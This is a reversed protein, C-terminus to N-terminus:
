YITGTVLESVVINKGYAYERTVTYIQAQSRTLWLGHIKTVDRPKM